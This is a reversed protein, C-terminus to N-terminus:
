EGPFIAMQGRAWVPLVLAKDIPLEKLLMDVNDSTTEVGLRELYTCAYERELTGSDPIVRSSISQVPKLSLGVSSPM